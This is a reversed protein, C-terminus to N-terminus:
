LWKKYNYTYTYIFTYTGVNSDDEETVTDRMMAEFERLFDDEDKKSVKPKDNEKILLKVQVDGDNEM